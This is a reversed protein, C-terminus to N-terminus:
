CSVLLIFCVTKYGAALPIKFRSFSQGAKDRDFNIASHVHASVYFQWVFNIGETEETDTHSQWQWVRVSSEKFEFVFYLLNLLNDVICHTHQPKIKKLKQNLNKWVLKIKIKKQTTNM